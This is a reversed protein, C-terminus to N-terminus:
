PLHKWSNKNRINRVTHPSIGFKNALDDISLSSTRIEMAQEDTLLSLCHREGKRNLGRGKSYMDNMNDSHTGLFLHEPNVCRPNDCRHLVWMGDPIKGVFIEYSIRHAAICRRGQEGYFWMKGYNRPPAVAGIWLWCGCNPEPIYKMEFREINKKM